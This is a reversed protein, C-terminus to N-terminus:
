HSPFATPANVQQRVLDQQRRRELAIQQQLLQNDREFKIRTLEAPTLVKQQSVAQHTEHLAQPARPKVAVFFMM